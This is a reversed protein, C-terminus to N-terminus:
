SLEFKPSETWLYSLVAHDRLIRESGHGLAFIVFYKEFYCLERIGTGTTSRPSGFNASISRIALERKSQPLLPRVWMVPAGILMKGTGTQYIWMYGTDLLFIILQQSDKKVCHHDRVFLGQRECDRVDRLFGDLCVQMTAYGYRYFFNDLWM